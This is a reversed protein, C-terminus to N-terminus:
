PFGEPVGKHELLAACEPLALLAARLGPDGLRAALARIESAALQKRRVAEGRQGAAMLAQVLAHHIFFPLGERLVGRTELLAAAAQADRLAAQPQNSNLQAASRAVLASIQDSVAGTTHAAALATDAAPIAQAFQQDAVLLAAHQSLCHSELRLSGLAQAILRAQELDRAAQGLQGLGQLACVRTTLVFGELQRYEGRQILVLAEDLDTLARAFQGYLNNLTARNNLLRAAMYGGAGRATLALGENYARLAGEPDLLTDRVIGLWNLAGMLAPPDLRRAVRAAEEACKLAQPFDELYYAAEALCLEAQYTGRDSGARRLLESAERALAGAQVPQGALSQVRSRGLVVLGRDLDSTALRAAENLSETQVTHEGLTDALNAREILWAARREDSGPLAELARNLLTLASRADYREAAQRAAQRWWAAAAAPTDTLLQAIALADGGQAMLNEALRRRLLGARQPSLAGQLARRILAHAFRYAQGASILLGAEEAREFAALASWEDLATAGILERLTFPEDILSAADLLRRAEAGLRDARATIAAGVSAAMPLEAYDSTVEDYATQWQGGRVTIVGSELLGRLTQVVFLPNGDTVAHLRQSFLEGSSTGSLTRVLSLLDAESLASLHETTLVGAHAWAELAAQAAQATSLESPRATLLLLVPYNSVLRACVELTTDDFWQVDDLILSGGPGASLALAHTLAALFRPRGAPLTDAPLRVSSLEPLLRALEGRWPEELQDLRGAKLSQRLAGELPALPTARALETGHLTLAGGRLAALEDALRTKGVGSEGILLVVGSELPRLRKLAAERGTLPLLGRDLQRQPEASTPATRGLGERIARALAATEPLPELELDRALAAQCRAYRSLAQDREGLRAHLRMVERCAEENLEDQGLLTLWSHLAARLDGAAELAAAHSRLGEARRAELGERRARLWEEFSPGGSAGALLEGRYLREAGTVDGARLLREYHEVDCPLGRYSVQRKSVELVEAAPSRGLRYLEARLNGRAQEEGADDWLLNALTGRDAPGDLALYALLWLGKRTPLHIPTGGLQAQPVGLLRLELATSSPQPEM